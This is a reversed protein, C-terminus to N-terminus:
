KIDTNFEELDSSTQNETTGGPFLDARVWLIIHERFLPAERFTLWSITNSPLIGTWGPLTWWVFDQGRYAATLAPAKEQERTIIVDPMDGVPPTSVFQVNPMDRLQWRISPTEVTSVVDIYRPSGTEWNSFDTLTAMFLSAQGTGPPQNWIEQPQNSRLQTAGWLASISYVAFLISLGWVLGLRSEKWSWGLSILATTLAGLSIIGLLIAIRIGLWPLETIPTIQNTAVLSNWFLAGLILVLGAELLTVPNPKGEPVYNKLEMAALIWLPVITWVLESVQRGTHLLTLALSISTWILPLLILNDNVWNPSRRNILWRVVAVGAFILAFIQYVFLAAVLYLPHNESPTLWSEIYLPFMSFWAPLGEPHRLFNTGIILITIGAGIVTKRWVKQSGIQQSSLIEEQKSKLLALTIGIGLIGQLVAPGSLLALGAFLGAAIPIRMQWFSFALLTFTLAMMPGGAQRSTVVLGPDLALGFALILATSRGLPRRFLIPITILASGALAPWFRALFENAGFLAFWAGTLFVYAPQPGLSLPVDEASLRAVQLAQLAWEAEKDSLPTGGLNYFRVVLALFLAVAFLTTELTLRRINM